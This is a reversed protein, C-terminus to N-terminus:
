RAVWNDFRAGEGNFTLNIKSGTPGMRQKAVIIEAKGAAKAVKKKWKERKREQEEDESEEPEDRKLYYERRFLFLIVDADAEIKGSDRLDSLSPRKSPRDEVRRSLQHAAILPVALRKAAQKLAKSIGSVRMYDNVFKEGTEALDLHDIIILEAGFKRARASIEAVTLGPSDDLLLPLGSLEDRATRIRGIEDDSMKGKLTTRASVGSRRALMLATIEAASMELSFFAVRRDRALNHLAINTLLTTKGMSPRAGLIVYQGPRLGNLKNDLDVFGTTIGALAGGRAQAAEAEAVTTDLFEAFAKGDVEGAGALAMLEGQAMDIQTQADPAERREETRWDEETFTYARSAIDEALDILRRRMYRDHIIAAYDPANIITLASAVLQALYQTGGIDSLAGDQEFYNKLTVPDAVQGKAALAVVAEFIRGHARDAFHDTTILALKDLVRNDCLIAGLLAMEAEFNHPPTRYPPRDDVVDRHKGDVLRLGQGTM